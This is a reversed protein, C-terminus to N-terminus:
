LRVLNEALGPEGDVFRGRALLRKCQQSMARIQNQQVDIKGIDVTQLDAPTNFPIRIGCSSQNQM